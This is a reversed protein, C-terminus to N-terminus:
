INVYSGDHCAYCIEEGLIEKLGDLTMYTLSDAGIEKSVEKEEKFSAILEERTPTDIGYFCSYKIPPYTICLHVEKAGKEKLIKVMKSLTTGRVISDDILIIRKHKLNKEIPTLTYFVEKKRIEESPKIFNRGGYRHKELVDVLPIEIGREKLRKFFGEAAARSTEPVPSIVTDKFEFTERNKLFVDCLMKGLEERYEFIQKSKYRSTTRSFYVIEFSCFKYEKTYIKKLKINLDSDVILLTGREVEIFDKFGLKELAITESSVSVRNEDFSYFLPRIGYPDRLAFLFKNKLIGLLSYGGKLHSLSEESFKEIDKSKQYISFFAIIDIESEFGPNGFKELIESVNKIHGNHVMGLSEYVVPQAERKTKTTPYRTQGIFGRGEIGKIVESKFVQDVTGQGKILEGEFTYIGAADQGRHQLMELSIYAIEGLDKRKKKELYGIIGCM